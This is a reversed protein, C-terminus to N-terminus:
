AVELELQELVIGDGAALRAPVGCRPCRLREGAALPVACAPCAWAAEVSRIVLDAGACCTGERALEYASRVLEPEVGSQMGIAIRVVAVSRAAHAQAEAEVRDLLAQVISMEHM